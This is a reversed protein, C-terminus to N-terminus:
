NPYFLGGRYGMCGILSLLCKHQGVYYNYPSCNLYFSLKTWMTLWAGEKEKQRTQLTLTLDCTAGFRMKLFIGLPAWAWTKLFLGLFLVGGKQQHDMTPLTWVMEFRFFSWWIVRQVPCSYRNVPDGARHPPDEKGLNENDSSTILNRFIKDILFILFM